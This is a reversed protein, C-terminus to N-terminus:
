APETERRSAGGVELSAKAGILERDSWRRIQERGVYVTGWDNVVGTEDFLSLFAETDGANVSRVFAAIVVPLQM